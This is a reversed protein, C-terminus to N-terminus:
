IASSDKHCASYIGPQNQYRHSNLSNSQCAIKLLNGHQVARVILMHGFFTLFNMTMLQCNVGAKKYRVKKNIDTTLVFQKM